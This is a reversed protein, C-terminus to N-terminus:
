SRDIQYQGHPIGRKWVAEFASACLGITRPESTQEVSVWEGDGSFHSFQVLRDDFLWFDNGPLALDSANRRPLWCVRDGAAINLDQTVDYAFRVYDTVPQSV